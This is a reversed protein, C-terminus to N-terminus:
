PKGHASEPLSWALLAIKIEEFEKVRISALGRLPFHAVFVRSSFLDEQWGYECERCGKFTNYTVKGVFCVIRPRYRSVARLLRIVGKKEEGRKLDTVDTSPRDVLNVLNLSYTQMFKREFLHKLFDDRKLAAEDEELIGARNLLYWFMKNNSFPVGRRYSGHHPNIGVFLIRANTSVKYQIM